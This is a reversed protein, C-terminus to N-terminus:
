DRGSVSAALAARYQQARWGAGGSGAGIPGRAAHCHLRAVERAAQAAGTAHRDPRQIDPPM